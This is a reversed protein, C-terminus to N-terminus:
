DKQTEYDGCALHNEVQIDGEPEGQENLTLIILAYSTKDCKKDEFNEIDVGANSLSELSIKHNSIGFVKGEIYDQYYKTAKDKLETELKEYKNSKSCGVLLLVAAGLIILGKKM